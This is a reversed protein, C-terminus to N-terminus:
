PRDHISKKSRRSSSILPNRGFTMLWVSLDRRPAFVCSIRLGGWSPHIRHGSRLLRHIRSAAPKASGDARFLGFSEADDMLAYLFVKKIQAQRFATALIGELFDAQTKESVALPHGATPLGVETIWIPRGADGHAKMVEQIQGVARLFNGPDSPNLGVYPHIAVVDCLAVIGESYCAELDRAWSESTHALGGLVIINSPDVHKLARRARELILRYDQWRREPHAAYPGTFFTDINPENWIEWWVIRGKYREAMRHAYTEFAALDLPMTKSNGPIPSNWLVNYGLVQLIRLRDREAMDVIRDMSIFDWAGSKPEVGAWELSLRVQTVGLRRCLAFQKEAQPGPFHEPHMNVGVFRPELAVSPGPTKGDRLDSMGARVFASVGLACLAWGMVLLAARGV